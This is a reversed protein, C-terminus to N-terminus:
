MCLLLVIYYYYDVCVCVRVWGLVYISVEREVRCGGICLILWSAQQADCMGRWERSRVRGGFGRSVVMGGALEEKVGRFIELSTTGSHIPEKVRAAGGLVSRHLFGGDLSM